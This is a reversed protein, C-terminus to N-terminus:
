KKTSFAKLRAMLGGTAGNSGNSSNSSAFPNPAAYESQEEVPSDNPEGGEIEPAVPPKAISKPQGIGARDSLANLAHGIHHRALKINQQKNAAAASSLHHAAVKHNAM